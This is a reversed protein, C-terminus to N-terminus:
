REGEGPFLIMFATPVLFVAPGVLGTSVAIAIKNLLTEAGAAAAFGLYVTTGPAIAFVFIAILLGRMGEGNWLSVAKKNWPLRESILFLVPFLAYPIFWVQFTLLAILIAENPTREWIGAYLSIFIFEGIMGATVALTPWKFYIRFFLPLKM